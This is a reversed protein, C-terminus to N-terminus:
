VVGSAQLYGLGLSYCGNVRDSPVTLLLHGESTLLCPKVYLCENNLIRCGQCIPPRQSHLRVRHRSRPHLLLSISPAAMHRDTCRLHRLSLLGVRLYSLAWGFQMANHSCARTPALRAGCLASLQSIDDM